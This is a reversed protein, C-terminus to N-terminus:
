RRSACGTATGTARSCRSSVSSLDRDAHDAGTTAEFLPRVPSRGHQIVYLTWSSRGLLAFAGAIAVALCITRRTGTATRAAIWSVAIAAAIQLVVLIDAALAARHTFPRVLLLFLLTAVCLGQTPGALSDLRWRQLPRTM